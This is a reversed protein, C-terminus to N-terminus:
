RHFIISFWIFCNDEVLCVSVISEKSDREGDTEILTLWRSPVWHRFMYSSHLNKGSRDVSTHAQTLSWVLVNNILEEYKVLLKWFTKSAKPTTKSISPLTFHQVAVTKYINLNFIKVEKGQPSFCSANKKRKRQNKYFYLINYKKDRNLKQIFSVEQFGLVNRGVWTRFREKLGNDCM